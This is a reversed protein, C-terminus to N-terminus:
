SQQLLLNLQPPTPPNLRPNLAAVLYYSLSAIDRLAQLRTVVSQHPNFRKDLGTCGHAVPMRM